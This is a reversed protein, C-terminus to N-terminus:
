DMPLTLFSVFHMLNRPLVSGYIPYIEIKADSTVDYLVIHFLYSKGNYSEERCTSGPRLVVNIKHRGLLRQFSLTPLHHAVTRVVFNGNRGAFSEFMAVPGVSTRGASPIDVFVIPAAGGFIM